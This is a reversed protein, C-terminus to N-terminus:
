EVSSNQVSAWTDHMIATLGDATRAALAAVPLMGMTATSKSDSHCAASDRAERIRTSVGGAQKKIQRVETCFTQLEQCFRNALEQALVALRTPAEAAVARVIEVDLDDRSSQDRLGERM